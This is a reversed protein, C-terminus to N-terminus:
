TPNQTPVPRTLADPTAPTAPAAPASAPVSAPRRATKERLAQDLLKDQGYIDPLFYVRGDARAIATGYALVVPLPQQLAVTNSQGKTMAQRIREETWGPMDQLVFKALAVPEEVRICGHSFDRRDRKFLQPTPTHHLYINQNNPFVFKIDGLANMPGPRQRIRMRGNMVADLNADSLTTVAKGNSVFEFGQQTFYAPDRRLRPITESRAISPPVNWYPSFEIYRMDEKFLPTRTDLAKGVIVKMQLKIDLKGGNYDYARLMFEPINVVIMRPSDTLPTWRLREMTLEIQRVRAAPTTNLQALTGAGIVGDTELGHRAQFAKIGDVVAGSYRKPAPADAPMDGLAHLRRAMEALGSYAQGSTLKGGPPAPLTRDWGPQAALTRYHALADRLTGYLPFSPAAERIAEPLRHGAVAARLYSDPEFAASPPATFNAHVKRPDVRGSHLDSLYRRMADSLTNDLKDIADQAPQPGTAAEALARKLGDADYDQPVLGDAQAGSLASVAQQADPTPRGSAFWLPQAAASAACALLWAALTGGIWHRAHFAPTDSLRTDPTTAPTM